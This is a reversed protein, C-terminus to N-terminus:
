SQDLGDSEVAIRDSITPRNESHPKNMVEIAREAAIGRVRAKDTENNKHRLRHEEPTVVELNDVRNDIKCSSKHHVEKSELESVDDLLLTALLRHTLVTDASDSGVKCKWQMYGDTQEGYQAIATKELSHRDCWRSITTRSVGCQNAIDSQFRDQKLYQQELWDADKYKEETTTQATSM